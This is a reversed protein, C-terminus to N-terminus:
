RGERYWMTCVALLLAGLSLLSAFLPVEVISLVRYAGNSKLGLWGSGAMQRGPSVKVLRPMGDSLWSVSGGTAKAIPDLVATTAILSAAERADASGAAAVAELNGDSMRHLGAESIELKGQWLGPSAQSLTVTKTKGSPLTVTVPDTKDAMTRREILLQSGKQSATLAEEELDPEQMLWHAIRRLLETQPGGGDFGRAWLWGQDSLMQAVRGKGEHALVLLPRDDMGSM